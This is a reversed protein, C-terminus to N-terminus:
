SNWYRFSQDNYWSCLFTHRFAKSFNSRCTPKEFNETIMNILWKWSSFLLQYFDDTKGYYKCIGNYFASTGSITSASVWNTRTRATMPPRVVNCSPLLLQLDMLRAEWNMSRSGKLTSRCMCFWWILMSVLSSDCCWDQVYLIMM